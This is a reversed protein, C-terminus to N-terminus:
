LATGNCQILNGNAITARFLIVSAELGNFYFSLQYEVVSGLRRNGFEFHCQLKSSVRTDMKGSSSVIASTATATVTNTLSQQSALACCHNVLNDYTPKRPDDPCNNFCVLIDQYASCQCSYDQLGCASPGIETSALCGDVINEAACSASPSSTTTTMTTTTDQALVVASALIAALSFIFGKM